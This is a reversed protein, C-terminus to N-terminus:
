AKLIGYLTATTGASLYGSSDIDIRSIATTSRFVSVQHVVTGAGNRDFSSTILTTKFASSAYSFIDLSVFAPISTSLTTDLFGTISGPNANFTSTASSGNSILRTSGYLNSTQQNYTITMTGSVTGARAAIILKLDTYTGPISAFTITGAQAGLTTTAIPEYTIAM